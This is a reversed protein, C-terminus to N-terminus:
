KSCNPKRTHSAASWPPPPNPPAQSRASVAASLVGSSLLLASWTEFPQDPGAAAAELRALPEFAGAMDSTERIAVPLGAADLRYVAGLHVSGVETRDDNLIGIPTLSLPVEPLLLEEQLERRCAREFLCGAAPLADCPNVHGGVGISRLGHLRREGQTALRTLCLVEDGRCVAVYPILQKFEPHTEAYRREIFFGCERAPALFRAEMEAPCLSLLGHLPEQLVEIRPVVWVFEM